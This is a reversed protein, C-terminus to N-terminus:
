LEREITYAGGLATQLRERLDPKTTKAADSDTDHTEMLAEVLRRSTRSPGRGRWRVRASTRDGRSQLPCGAGRLSTNDTEGRGRVEIDRYWRIMARAATAAAGTTALACVRMSRVGVTLLVCIANAYALLM